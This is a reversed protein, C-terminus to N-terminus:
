SGEKCWSRDGEWLASGAKSILVGRHQQLSFLGNPFYISLSMQYQDLHSTGVTNCGRISIEESCRIGKRLGPLCSARIM